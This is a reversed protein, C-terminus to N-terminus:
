QLTGPRTSAGVKSCSPTMGFWPSYGSSRLARISHFLRCSGPGRGRRATRPGAVRWRALRIPDALWSFGPLEFLPCLRYAAAAAPSCAPRAHPSRPPPVNTTSPCSSSPAPPSVSGPPKRRAGPPCGQRRLHGRRCLGSRSRCREAPRRRPGIGSSRALLQVSSAQGRRAAAVVRSRSRSPTLPWPFRPLSGAGSEPM